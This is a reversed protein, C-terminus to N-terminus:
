KQFSTSNHKMTSHNEISGWGAIVIREGKTVMGVQHEYGWIGTLFIICTGFEQPPIINIFSKEYSDKKQKFHLDGGDITSPNQNLSLSFAIARSGDDHWIGDEDYPATRIAIIHEIFEIAHFANLLLFLEGGTKGIELFYQDLALYNKEEIWTKVKSPLQVQLKIYGQSFLQKKLADLNKLDCCFSNLKM